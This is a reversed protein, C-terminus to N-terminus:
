VSLVVVSALYYDEDNFNRNYQYTLFIEGDVNNWAAQSALKNAVRVLGGGNYRLDIVLEDVGILQDYTDM